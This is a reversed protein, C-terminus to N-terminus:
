YYCSHQPRMAGFHCKLNTEYDTQEIGTISSYLMKSGSFRPMACKKGRLLLNSVWQLLPVRYFAAHRPKNLLTSSAFYPVRM